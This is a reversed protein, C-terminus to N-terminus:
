FMKQLAVIEKTKNTSGTDVNIIEEVLNKVSDLCRAKTDEDSKLIISLSISDHDM